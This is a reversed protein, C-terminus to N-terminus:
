NCYTRTRASWDSKEDKNVLWLACDKLGVKSWFMAMLKEEVKLSRETGCWYFWVDKTLCDFLGNTSRNECKRLIESGRIPQMSKFLHCESSRIYALHIELEFLPRKSWRLSRTAQCWLCIMFIYWFWWRQKRKTLKITWIAHNSVTTIYLQGPLLFLEFCKEQISASTCQVIERCYIQMKNHINIILRPCSQLNLNGFYVKGSKM